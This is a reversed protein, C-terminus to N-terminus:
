SVNGSKQRSKLRLFLYVTLLAGYNLIMFWWHSWQIGNIKLDSIPWLFPTPYFKYSHTPIDFLIHLLWPGLIWPIKRRVFYIVAIVIAFIILSHSYQYLLQTFDSLTDTGPTWPELETSPRHIMWPYGLLRQIFSWVFFPGFAFVDPFVGWLFAWKMKIPQHLKQNAAKAYLTGWLGHSLVDM